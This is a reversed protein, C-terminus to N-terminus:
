NRAQRDIQIKVAEQIQQMSPKDPNDYYIRAIEVLIGKPIKENQYLELWVAFELYDNDTWGNCLESLAAFYRDKFDDPWNIIQFKADCIAEPLGEASKLILTLRETLNNKM